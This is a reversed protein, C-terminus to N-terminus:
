AGSFPRALLSRNRGPTDCSVMFSIAENFGFNHDRASDMAGFKQGKLAFSAHKITGERDPEESQGYRLVHGVKSDPFLSTYFTVAEEARGCVDGVFMLSPTISQEIEEGGAHM